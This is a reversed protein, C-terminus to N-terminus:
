IYERLLNKKLKEYLGDIMLFSVAVVDGKDREWCRRKEKDECFFTKFLGFIYYGRWWLQFHLGEERELGVVVRAVDVVSCDSEEDGSGQYSYSNM